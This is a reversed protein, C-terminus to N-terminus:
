QAQLINNNRKFLMKLKLKFLMAIFVPGYYLYRKSMRKPEKILRVFWEMGANRWFKAPRPIVGAYFDFAAGISCILKADLSAKNAYSWKEQKPATMGVFLVDPKFSNVESIMRKTDEQSFNEKYPPSYTGIRIGPHEKNIRAKIKQLTTESSGLYFCSGRQKDLQKLLYAQLDSGAIKNITRGKLFRVAAVMGIGDPLLVDAHQM